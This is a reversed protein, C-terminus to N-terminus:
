SLALLSMWGLMALLCAIGWRAGRKRDLRGRADVARLAFGALTVLWLVFCWAALNARVPDPGPADELLALHYAYPDVGPGLEMGPGTAHAVEQAAMLTAINRNARELLAPRHVGWARTALVARRLERFAALALVPQEEAEARAALDELRAFAEDDYPALPLRWRAARGLLEIQLDTDGAAEAEGAQELAQHGEWAVRVAAPVVIALVWLLGYLVLRRPQSWRGRSAPEDTAPPETM